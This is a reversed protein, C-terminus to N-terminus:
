RSRPRAQVALEGGGEGLLCGVAQGLGVLMVEGGSGTVLFGRTGRQGLEPVQRQDDALEGPLGRAPAGGPQQQRGPRDGAGAPRGGQDEAM